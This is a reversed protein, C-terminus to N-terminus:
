DEQLYSELVQIARLIGPGEIEWYRMGQVVAEVNERWGEPVAVRGSRVAALTCLCNTFLNRLNYWTGHHRHRKPEEKLRLIGLSVGKKAFNQMRDQLPVGSPSHVAYYLFPTYMWIKIELVRCRILYPLEEEPVHDNDFQILPPLGTCCEDLQEEFQEVAEIKFLLASETWSDVDGVYLLNLVRNAIRRLTIETLYYFWTQEQQQQSAVATRPINQSRTTRGQSPSESAADVDDVELVPPSPHLDAYHVDALSSNPCDIETRLECETKYCSWYLRQELSRSKSSKSVGAEPHVERRAECQLHLHYTKTASQFHSWAIIPRMTYMEYIGALFHCQSALIGLELLGFRKRAM